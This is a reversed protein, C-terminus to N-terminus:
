QKDEKDIGCNQLTNELSYEFKAASLLKQTYPHHPHYFIDDVRGREVIEGELMVVVEDCMSAVVGFDHTVLIVSLEEKKALTYIIKLIQSQITVDLATTPEDAILLKAKTLLSMAIMVRQRMGGSIEFPYQKMRKDADQIGVSKLAEVSLAQAESKSVKLFRRAVEILHFGITRLPNLSTMPDQFIMAIPLNKGTSIKEKEFYFTDWESTLNEPLIGMISKMSLSKGSGSEGIVGLIKGKEVSLNIGKVLPKTTKKDYVKLNQISLLESM